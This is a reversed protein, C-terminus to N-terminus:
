SCTKYLIEGFKCSPWFYVWTRNEYVRTNAVYMSAWIHEVILAQIYSSDYSTFEWSSFVNDVNRTVVCVQILPVDVSSFTALILQSGIDQNIFWWHLKGLQSKAALIWKQRYGINPELSGKFSPQMTLIDNNLRFQPALASKKWSSM